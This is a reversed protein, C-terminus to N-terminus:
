IFWDGARWWQRLSGPQFFTRTRLQWHRYSSTIALSTFLVGFGSAALLVVPPGGLALSYVGYVLTAVAFCVYVRFCLEDVRMIRKLEAEPIQALRRELNERLLVFEEGTAGSAPQEYDCQDCAHMQQMVGDIEETQTHLHGARCMPCKTAFAEKSLNGILSGGAKIADVNAIRGASRGIASFFGM